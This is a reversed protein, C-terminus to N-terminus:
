TISNYIPIYGQLVGYQDYIPMKKTVTGLASGSAIGAVGLQCNFYFTPTATDRNVKAFMSPSTGTDNLTRFQLLGGNAVIDWCQTGTPSDTDKFVYGPITGVAITGANISINSLADTGSVIPKNVVLRQVSGGTTNIITNSGNDTVTSPTTGFYLNNSSNADFVFQSATNQEAGCGLFLNRKSLSTVKWGNQLNSESYCMTFTNVSSDGIYWGNLTNGWANCKEAFGSNVDAGAGQDLADIVFGNGRNKLSFVNKMSWANTNYKVTKHGIVVGDGGCDSVM